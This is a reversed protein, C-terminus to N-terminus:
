LMQVQKADEPAFDFDDIRNIPSAGINDVWKRCYDIIPHEQVRHNSFFTVTTCSVNLTVLSEIFQRQARTDVFQGRQLRRKANAIIKEDQYQYFYFPALEAQVIKDKILNFLTDITEENYDILFHKFGNVDSDNHDICNILSRIFRKKEDISFRDVENRVFDSTFYHHYASNKYCNLLDLGQMPLSHYEKESQLELIAGKLCKYFVEIHDTLNTADKAKLQENALYYSILATKQAYLASFQKQLTNLTKIDLFLDHLRTYTQKSPTIIAFMFLASIELPSLQKSELRPVYQIPQIIKNLLVNYSEMLPTMNTFSIHQQDHSIVNCLTLKITKAHKNESYPNAAKSAIKPGMEILFLLKEEPLRTIICDSMERFLDSDTCALYIAWKLLIDMTSEPNKLSDLFRAKDDRLVKGVAANYAASISEFKETSGEAKNLSPHYQLAKVHYANIIEKYSAKEPIGLIEYYTM